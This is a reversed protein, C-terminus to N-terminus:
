VTGHGVYLAANTGIGSRSWRALVEGVRLPGGGDNGTVVTTVGQMLYAVNARRTGNLDALTHTHPDIFGPAVILGRADITDRADFRDAPGIAVLRGNAIFM